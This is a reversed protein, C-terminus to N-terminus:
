QYSNIDVLWAFSPMLPRNAIDLDSANGTRATGSCGGVRHIGSRRQTNLSSRSRAVRIPQESTTTNPGTAKSRGQSLSDVAVTSIGGGRIHRLAFVTWDAFLIVVGMIVYTAVKGLTRM